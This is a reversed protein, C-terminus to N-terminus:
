PRTLPKSVFPVLTLKGHLREGQEILAAAEQEDRTTFVAALNANSTTTHTPSSVFAGSDLQLTFKM